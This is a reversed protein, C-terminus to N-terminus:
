AAGKGRKIATRVKAPLLSWLANGEELDFHQADFKAAMARECDELQQILETALSLLFAQEEESQAIFDPATPPASLRM